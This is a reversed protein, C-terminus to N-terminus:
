LGLQTLNINLSIQIKTSATNEYVLVVYSTRAYEHGKNITYRGILKRAPVNSPVNAKVKGKLLPWRITELASSNFLELKIM